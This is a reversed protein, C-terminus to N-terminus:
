TSTGFGFPTTSTAATTTVAAQASGSRQAVPTVGYFSITDTTSQGLCVGEPAAQSLQQASLAMSKRRKKPFHPPRLGRHNSLSSASPLNHVSVNIDTYFTLAAPFETMRSTM